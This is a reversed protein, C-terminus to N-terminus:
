ATLPAIASSAASLVTLLRPANRELLQRFREATGTEPVPTFVVQWLEAPDHVRFVHLELELAGVVPHTYSRRRSPRPRVDHEAWWAALQSSHASLSEVLEVFRPQDLHRAWSLRFQALTARAQEEWDKTMAALAQNAFVLWLVNRREEPLADLDGFLVGTARNWVLVDWCPGVVFAPMTGLSDVFRRLAAVTEDSPEPAADAPTALALLYEREIPELGLGDAISLLVQVSVGRERGQEIRAYWTESIGALQAVQERRLGPVRQLRGATLGVKAPTTRERCRRLFDAVVRFRGLNDIVV